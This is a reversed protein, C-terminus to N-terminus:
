FGMARNNQQLMNLLGIGRCLSDSKATAFVMFFAVDAVSLTMYSPAGFLSAMLFSYSQDGHHESEHWWKIQM